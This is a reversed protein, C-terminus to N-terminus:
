FNSIPNEVGRLFKEFNQEDGNFANIDVLTDIGKLRGKNAYQWFVWKRKETLKPKSLIDRIWLPNELFENKMYQDYFEKTAYIIVKKGYHKELIELFLYIDKIEEAKSKNSACNGGFELDVVPPMANKDEPVTRIFNEAQKEPTTCLRYFHYAGTKYGEKVSNEWNKRFDPDEFDMGETAKIFVFNIKEERLKEWDIKGQHHSIDIGQVPFEKRSVYNFRLYGNMILFYLLLLVIAFLVILSFFQKLYM